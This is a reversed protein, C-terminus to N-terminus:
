EIELKHEKIKEGLVKKYFTKYSLRLYYQMTAYSAIKKERDVEQKNM